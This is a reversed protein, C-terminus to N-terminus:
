LVVSLGGMELLEGVLALHAPLTEEFVITHHGTHVIMVAYVLVPTRLTVVFCVLQELKLFVHVRVSATNDVVTWDTILLAVSSLIKATVSFLDTVSPISQLRPKGWHQCKLDVLQSQTLRLNKVFPGPKAM